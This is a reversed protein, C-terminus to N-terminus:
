GFCIIDQEEDDDLILSPFLLTKAISKQQNEISKSLLQKAKSKASSKKAPKGNVKTVVNKSQNQVARKSTEWRSQYFMKAKFKCQEKAPKGNVSTVVNKSQNQVAKKKPQDKM